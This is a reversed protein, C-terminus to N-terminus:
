GGNEDMWRVMERFIYAARRRGAREHNALARGLDAQIEDVIADTDDWRYAEYILRVRRGQEGVPGRGRRRRRLVVRRRRSRVPAHRSRRRGLRHLGEFGVAELYRLLDHVFPSHPGTPRRVTDWVRVVGPTQRGGVLPLERGEADVATM